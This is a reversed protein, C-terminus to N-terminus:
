GNYYRWHFGGATRDPRRCCFAINQFCIGTQRSAETVSKFVIGTEVCCVPKRNKETAREHGTGFNINYKLDCFELNDARNNTKNEDKHNVQPYGHPNPIFAEAVLRHVFFSKSNGNKCLNVRLYGRNNCYPKLSKGSTMGFVDGLDSVMYLGEYGKIDKWRVM